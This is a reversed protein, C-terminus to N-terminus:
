FLGIVALIGLLIVEKLRTEVQSIKERSAFNEKTKIWNTGSPELQSVLSLHFIRLVTHWFV